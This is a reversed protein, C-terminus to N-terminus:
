NGIIPPPDQSKLLKLTEFPLKALPLPTTQATTSDIKTPFALIPDSARMIRLSALEYFRLYSAQLNSRDRDERHPCV